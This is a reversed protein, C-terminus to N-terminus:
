NVIIVAINILISLILNNHEFKIINYNILYLNLYHCRHSETRLQKYDCRSGMIYLSPLFRRTHSCTHFGLMTRSKAAQLLAASEVCTAWSLPFGSRRVVM